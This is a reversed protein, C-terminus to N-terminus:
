SAAVAAFDKVARDLTDLDARLSGFLPRTDARFRRQVSEATTLTDPQLLDYLRTAHEKVPKLVQATVKTVLEADHKSLKELAAKASEAKTPGLYQAYVDKLGSMCRTHYLTDIQSCRFDFDKAIRDLNTDHVRDFLPRYRGKPDRASVDFDRYDQLFLLFNNTYNRLIDAIERFEKAAQVYDPKAEDLTKAAARVVEVLDRVADVGESVDKVTELLTVPDM